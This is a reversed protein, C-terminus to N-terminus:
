RRTSGPWSPPRAGGDRATVRRPGRRAPQALDGILIGKDARASLMMGADALDHLSQVVPQLRATVAQIAHSWSTSAIDHPHAM